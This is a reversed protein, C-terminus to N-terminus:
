QKVVYLNSNSYSFCKLTQCHYVKCTVCLYVRYTVVSFKWTISKRIMYCYGKLNEWFGKWSETHREIDGSLRIFIVYVWLHNIYSVLFMLYMIRFINLQVHKIHLENFNLFNSVSIRSKFLIFFQCSMDTTRRTVTLEFNRNNFVGVTGWYQNINVSMLLSFLRNPRRFQRLIM